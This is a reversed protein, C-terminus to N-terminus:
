RGPTGPPTPATARGLIRIALMSVVACAAAVLLELPELRVTRFFNDGVPSYIVALHLAASGVLSSVLLRGPRGVKEGRPVSNARISLAHLLQAFVLTTFVMTRAGSHDLGLATTGLMLAALAGGALLIGQVVLLTLNRRGLIDRGSGPPHRMPDSLPQDMGLAVAPMADTVLNIWLIQVALLPEGLHGFVLFGVLVYFVEAANASLLYHVVNRLNAFLRRGEAIAAVITAYNDDTLVIASADRAVDTGSGMAVGIDARNLAPADNVGDGTMAVRAGSRQWAEVIKVKDTPDVRAFVRYAGIDAALDDATLRSLERGTLTKGETLGIRDAVASGTTAHDGTVIVTRVGASAATKVADPVEPRIQETLGAMGLYILDQEEDAPDEPRRVLPKAAFGLTRIGRSAMSEAVRVVSERAADDIVALEDGAASAGSRAILVEPAGKVLLLLDGDISHVTSMRKRRGDFGAEDLRPFADRMASVDFGQREVAKVLAVETPDGKWGAESLYADNCLISSSLLLRAARDKSHLSDFGTRGDAMVVEGVELEPLTLTGTKDTCIVDVAGLAEVAALRRVVANRRAMRQLGGALSITIVTPLGEPIAAVALAVATLIMTEVPFSRVLGVALVLLATIAAMAALRRGIRTLDEELPTSPHGEFLEAIRGMETQRGTAVILAQGRGAVVTTGAYIMSSRDALITDEPCAEADKPVPMSEGTLPAEDVVMRIAFSVRGDAPVKDGAEVIVLDGPAVERTPVELVTGSRVVKAAPAEMASLRALASHARSEQAYGIAANLLVIAGIAAADIWAGLLVGSVSAAAVLLWVLVDNFQDAIIRLRAWREPPALVNPGHRRLRDTAVTRDLGDKPDTGLQAAVESISKSHWAPPATTPEADPTTTM